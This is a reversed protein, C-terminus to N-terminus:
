RYGQPAECREPIPVNIIRDTLKSWGSKHMILIKHFIINRAILSGELETLNLNQEQLDKDSQHLELQNMVSTPPMKGKKLYTLCTKCIYRNGKPGDNRTKKSIDEQSQKSPKKSQLLEVLTVAHPQSICVNTINSHKKNLEGELRERESTMFGIM